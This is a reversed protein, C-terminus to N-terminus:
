QQRRFPFFRRLSHARKLIPIRWDPLAPLPDSTRSKFLFRKRTSDMANCCDSASQDISVLPHHDRDHM